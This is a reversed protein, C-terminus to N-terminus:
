EVKYPLHHVTMRAHLAAEDPVPHVLSQGDLICLAALVPGVAAVVSVNLLIGGLPEGVAIEVAVAYDIGVDIRMGRCLFDLVPILVHFDAGAGNGSLELYQVAVVETRQVNIIEAPLEEAVAFHDGFAVQVEASRGLIRLGESDIQGRHRHVMGPVDVEMCTIGTGLGIQVLAAQQSRVLHNQHTRIRRRCLLECTLDLALYGACVSLDDSELAFTGFQDHINGLALHNGELATAPVHEVLVESQLEVEPTGGDVVVPAVLIGYASGFPLIIGYDAIDVNFLFLISGADVYFVAKGLTAVDGHGVAEAIGAVQADCAIKM